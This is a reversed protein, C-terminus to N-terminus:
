REDHKSQNLDLVLNIEGSTMGLKRAIADRPMGQAALAIVEGYPDTPPEDIPIKSKGTLFGKLIGKLEGSGKLSFVHLAKLPSLSAGSAPKLGRGVRWLVFLLALCLLIDVIINIKAM